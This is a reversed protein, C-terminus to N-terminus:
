QDAYADPTFNYGCFRCVKAEGQVVEACQPCRKMGAPVVNAAVASGAAPNPQMTTTAQMPASLQPYTVVAPAGPMVGYQAAFKRNIEEASKYADFIAWVFVIFGTFFGIFILTLLGNIIQVVLFLIGKGIQGNYIQGLGTILFSLVAALAPNKPPQIVQM